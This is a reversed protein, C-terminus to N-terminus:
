FRTRDNRHEGYVVGKKMSIPSYFRRTKEIVAIPVINISIFIIKFVYFLRVFIIKVVSQSILILINSVIIAKHRLFDFLRTKRSQVLGIIFIIVFTPGVVGEIGIFPVMWVTLIINIFAGIFTAGMLRVTKKEVVYYAKQFSSLRLLLISLLLLLQYKLYTM